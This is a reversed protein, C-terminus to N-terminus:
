SIYRNGRPATVGAPTVIAAHMRPGAPFASTGSTGIATPFVAAPEYRCCSIYRRHQYLKFCAIVSHGERPLRCIPDERRTKRSPSDVPWKRIFIARARKRPKTPHTSRSSLHADNNAVNVLCRTASKMQQKTNNRYVLRQQHAVWLDSDRCADCRTGCTKLSSISFEM